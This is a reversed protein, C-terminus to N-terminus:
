FRVIIVLATCSSWHVHLIRGRIRRVIYFIKSLGQPSFLFFYMKYEIVKKRFDQGKHSLTLFYKVTCGSLGCIVIYYFAHANCAPYRLSWGVM